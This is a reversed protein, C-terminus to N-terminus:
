FGTRRPPGAGPTPSSRTAPQAAMGTVVQQGETFDGKVIEVFNADSLGTVVPVQRLRGQADLVSVMQKQAPQRAGSKPAGPTATQGNRPPQFRLAAKPLRLVNSARGVSITVNATMGPFLKLDDNAVQIVVDYTIVNQVNIPAQRIQSVRGRFVRGPWADVTFTARQDPHIRGIDSEDVNTDVQMKTLDQAILFITPAQFSAAVTQGVDMNRSEVTGDVPALIRTHSLNLQAQALVAANQQVVAKAQHLQNQAVDVQKGASNAVAEAANVAARAAEMSALAQDYAAQATDADEQSTSGNKVMIQRRENVVRAFDVASQAKVANAKQSSVNAVASVLDSQAKALVAQATVAAARAANLSATAQDVAAQFPAPDIEAVLQGKKVKTNFDAYLAIINGSVQSGVQVTIVANLAGTTTVTSEIDGRDIKATIYLPKSSGRFWWWFGIACVVLAVAGIILRRAAPRAIRKREAFAAPQEGAEAGVTTRPDEVKTNTM